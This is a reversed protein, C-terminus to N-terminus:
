KMGRMKNSMARANNPKKIAGSAMKGISTPRATPLRGTINDIYKNAKRVPKPMNWGGKGTPRNGSTSYGTRRSESKTSYIEGREAQAKTVSRQAKGMSRPFSTKNDMIDYVTRPASTKKTGRVSSGSGGSASGSSGSYGRAGSSGGSGTNRRSGEPTGKPMESVGKGVLDRIQDVRSV